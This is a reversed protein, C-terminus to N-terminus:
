SSGDCVIRIAQPSIDPLMPRVQVELAGPPIRYQQILVKRLGHLRRFVEQQEKRRRYYGILTWKLRPQTALNLQMAAAWAELPPKARRSAPIWLTEFVPPRQITDSLVYERGEAGDTGTLTDWSYLEQVLWVGRIAVSWGRWWLTDPLTDPLAVSDGRLLAGLWVDPYRGPEGRLRLRRRTYAAAWAHAELSDAASVHTLKRLYDYSRGDLRVEFCYQNEREFAGRFQLPPAIAQWRSLFAEVFALREPWSKPTEVCAAGYIPYAWLNEEVTDAPLMGDKGQDTWITDAAPTQWHAWSRRWEAKERLALRGFIGVWLREPHLHTYFYAKLAEYTPARGAWGKRRLAIERGLRLGEARRYYSRVAWPYLHEDGLEWSSIVAQLWRMAEGKYSWPVEAILAAGEPGSWTSFILGLSDAWARLRQTRQSPYRPDYVAGVFFDGVEWAESSHPWAVFVCAMPGQRELEPYTVLRMGSPWVEVIQLWIGIFCAFSGM